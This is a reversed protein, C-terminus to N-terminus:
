ASAMENHTLNFDSINALYKAAAVSLGNSQM